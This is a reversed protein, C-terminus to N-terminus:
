SPAVVTDAKWIDLLLDRYTRVNRTFSESLINVEVNVLFWSMTSTELINIRMSGGMENEDCFGKDEFNVNRREESQLM